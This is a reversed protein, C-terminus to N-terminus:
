SFNDPPTGAGTPARTVSWKGTCIMEKPELIRRGWTAVVENIGSRLKCCPHIQIYTYATHAGTHIPIHCTNGGCRKISHLTFLKRKSESLCFETCGLITHRGLKWICCNNYAFYCGQNNASLMMKMHSERQGIDRHSTHGVQLTYKGECNVHKDQRTENEPGSTHCRIWTWHYGSPACVFACLRAATGICGTGCVTWVASTEASVDVPPHRWIAKTASADKGGGGGYERANRKM